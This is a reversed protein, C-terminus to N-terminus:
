SLKQLRELVQAAHNETDVKKIVDVIKGDAGIIFSTRKIGMSKKGYMNKEVWVGFEEAVKHGTDALLPFPLSYKDTFKVHSEVADPSIGYVVVGAQKLKQYGDRLSCAQKTCGSTDDKPYFYLVTTQGKLAASKFNTGDTQKLTFIPTQDGIDLM